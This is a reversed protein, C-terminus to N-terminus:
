CWSHPRATVSRVMNPPAPLMISPIQFKPRSFRNWKRLESPCDIPVQFTLISLSIGVLCHSMARSTESPFLPEIPVM